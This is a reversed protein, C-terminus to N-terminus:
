GPTGLEHIIEQKTSEIHESMVKEAAGVDDKLLAEIIRLHQRGANRVRESSRYGKRRFICILRYINELMEILRRNGCRRVILDHLRRDAQWLSEVDRRSFTNKLENLEQGTIKGASLRVALTELAKRIDYIEAIDQAGFKRVRAGRRPEVYLYGDNVMRGIADRLPTRSVGLQKTLHEEKLRTGQPLKGSVIQRYLINYVRRGINPHEIMIKLNYQTKYVFYL